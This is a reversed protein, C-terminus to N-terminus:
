FRNYEIVLALDPTGLGSAAVTKEINIVHGKPIVNNSVTGLSTAVHPALNVGFTFAKSCIATTGAGATGKDVVKFTCYNTTDGTMTDSSCIYASVVRVRFPTRWVPLNILETTTSSGVGMSETRAVNYWYKKVTPM